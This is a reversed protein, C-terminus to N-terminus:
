DPRTGWCGLFINGNVNEIVSRYQGPCDGPPSSARPFMEWAPHNPLAQAPPPAHQCGLTLLVASVLLWRHYRAACRTKLAMPPGPRGATRLREATQRLFRIMPPFLPKSSMIRSRSSKGIKAPFYERVTGAPNIEAVGRASVRALDILQLDWQQRIESPPRGRLPQSPSALRIAADV